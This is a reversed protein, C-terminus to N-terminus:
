LVTKMAIMESGSSAVTPHKDAIAGLAELEGVFAVFADGVADMLTM